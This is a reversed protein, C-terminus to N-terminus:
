LLYELRVIATNYTSSVSFIVRQEIAKYTAPCINNAFNQWCPPLKQVYRM